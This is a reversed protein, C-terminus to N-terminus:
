SGSASLIVRSFVCENVKLQNGVIKFASPAGALLAYTYSQGQDQDVVGLTGVATDAGSNENVSNSSITIDTPAENRNVVTISFSKEFELTRRNSTDRVILRIPYTASASAEFDIPKM